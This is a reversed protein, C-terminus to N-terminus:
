YHSHGVSEEQSESVLVYFCVKGCGTEGCIIVVRSKDMAELIDRRFSAAPLQDREATLPCLQDLHPTFAVREKFTGTTHSNGSSRSQEKLAYAEKAAELPDIPLAVGSSDNADDIDEDPPFHADKSTRHAATKTKEAKIPVISVFITAGDSLGALNTTLPIELQKKKKKEQQVCFVRNPKKKLKLKAQALKLVEDVTTCRELVLTKKISGPKWSENDDSGKKYVAEVIDLRM